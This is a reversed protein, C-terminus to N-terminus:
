STSANLEGTFFELATKTKTQQEAALDVGRGDLYARAEAAVQFAESPCASPRSSSSGRRRGPYLWLEAVLERGLEPPQVKLKLSSPRASCSLDDLEIGEPAHEAYFARQEKSFLKRLPREGRM